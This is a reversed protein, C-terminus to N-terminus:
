SHQPEKRLSVHTRTDCFSCVIIYTNRQITFTYEDKRLSSVKPDGPINNHTLNSTNFYGKLTVNIVNHAVFLDTIKM